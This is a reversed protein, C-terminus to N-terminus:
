LRKKIRSRDVEGSDILARICTQSLEKSKAEMCLRLAPSGVTYAACHRFYDERCANEVEPSVARASQTPWPAMVAALGVAILAWRVDRESKPM